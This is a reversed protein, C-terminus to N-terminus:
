KAVARHRAGCYEHQRNIDWELGCARCRWYAWDHKYLLSWCRRIEATCSDIHAASDEIQWGPSPHSHLHACLDMYHQEIAALDEPTM